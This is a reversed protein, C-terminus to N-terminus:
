LINGMRLHACFFWRVFKCLNILSSGTNYMQNSSIVYMKGSKEGGFTSPDISQLHNFMAKGIKQMFANADYKSKTQVNLECWEIVFVISLLDFFFNVCM